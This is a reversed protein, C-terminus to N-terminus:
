PGTGFDSDTGPDALPEPLPCCTPEPLPMCSVHSVVQEKQSADFEVTIKNWGRPGDDGGLLCVQYNVRKVPVGEVVRTTETEETAVPGVLHEVIERPMGEQLPPQNDAVRVIM